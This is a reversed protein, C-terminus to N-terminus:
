KHWRNLVSSRRSRARLTASLTLCGDKSALGAWGEKVPREGAFLEAKQIGPEGRCFRGNGLKLNCLFM